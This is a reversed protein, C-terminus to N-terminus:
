KVAGHRGRVNCEIRSVEHMGNCSGFLDHQSAGDSEALLEAYQGPTLRIPRAATFGAQRFKQQVSLLYNTLRKTM